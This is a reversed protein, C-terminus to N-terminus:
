RIRIEPEELWDSMDSIIVRDGVALGSLIEVERAAIRGIEVAVLEARRGSDDLRFLEIETQDDRHGPPRELIRTEAVRDIEIRATVTLDPRLQRTPEGVFDVDVTVLRETVAPDIRSVKGAITERGMELRVNQGLEVLAADRESVRVRAILYEPNVVRAVETGASLREGEEVSVEQVVGAFGARVKLDQVREELRRVKRRQQDLKAQAAADRAARMEPYRDVQAQAIEMRREQQAAANQMRALALDSSAGENYLLLEADAELQATEFQATADALANELSLLQDESEALRLFEDAEAAELETQADALEQQLNPSSLEMLVDDPGVSHGPLVHVIEVVGESQNTVSRIEPAFLSGAATVEYIFEGQRVTGSFVLDGDVGPPRQAVSWAVLTLFVFGAGVATFVLIRRNRRKNTAPRQIDM